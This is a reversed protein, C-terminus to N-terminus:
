PLALLKAANRDCIRRLVDDTIESERLKLLASEFHFLPFHSGFVVRNEGVKEVLKAV